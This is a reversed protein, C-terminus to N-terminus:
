GNCKALKDAEIAEGKVTFSAIDGTDRQLERCVRLPRSTSKKAVCTTGECTWAVGGAIVTRETAPQTLEARYFPSNGAASAAVPATLAGFGVATYLVAAAFVGLKTSPSNSLTM